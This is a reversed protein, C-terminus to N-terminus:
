KEVAEDNDPHSMRPVPVGGAMSHAVGARVLYCTVVTALVAAACPGLVGFVLIDSGNGQSIAHRMGGYAMGGFSILGSLAPILCITIPRNSCGLILLIPVDLLAASLFVGALLSCLSLIINCILFVWLTEPGHAQQRLLARCQSQPKTRFLLGLGGSFLNKDRNRPAHPASKVVVAAKSIKFNTLFM